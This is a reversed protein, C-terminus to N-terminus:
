FHCVAEAMKNIQYGFAELPQRCDLKFRGPLLLCAVVLVALGLAQVRDARM